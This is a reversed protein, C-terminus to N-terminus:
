KIDKLRSQMQNLSTQIRSFNRNMDSIIIETQQNNATVASAARDFSAKLIGLTKEMSRLQEDHFQVLAATPALVKSLSEIDKNAQLLGDDLKKIAITIQKLRDADKALTSCNFQEPAMPITRRYVVLCTQGAAVEAPHNLTADIPGSAPFILTDTASDAYVVVLPCRV